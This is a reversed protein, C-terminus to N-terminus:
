RRLSPLLWPVPGFRSGCQSKPPASCSGIWSVAIPLPVSGTGAWIWPTSASADCPGGCTAGAGPSCAPGCPTTQPFSVLSTSSCVM